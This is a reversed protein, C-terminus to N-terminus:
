REQDLLTSPLLDPFIHWQAALFMKRRMQHNESNGEFGEIFRQPIKDKIWKDVDEIPMAQIVKFRKELDPDLTPPVDGRKIGTKIDRGLRGLRGMAAVKEDRDYTARVM